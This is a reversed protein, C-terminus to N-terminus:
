IFQIEVEKLYKEKLIYAIKKIVNRRIELEVPLTPDQHADNIKTGILFKIHDNALIFRIIRGAPNKDSLIEGSELCVAVRGITLIGETVLDIGKMYSLPPLESDGAYLDTEIELGLERSVIQATTGGCIIKNGDFFRITDAVLKDKEKKYPPGSCILLNRPKRFYIVICSIDDQASLSDNTHAKNVIKNALEEASIRPNKEIIDAIFNEIDEIEWGFPMDMRGIGSQSVGDSFLIIRDERQACFSCKKIDSKFDKKSIDKFPASGRFVIFPPNGYEVISTENDYEIDVISFTAYSIKREPDIPLTSKIAQSSRELPQHEITFNLAMSATLTALVNAKIGSGLGDSLVSITRGEEYIKKSLFVDGCVEQGAKQLNKHAIEIFYDNTIM